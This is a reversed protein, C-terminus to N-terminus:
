VAVSGRLLCTFIWSSFGYWPAMLLWIYPEECDPMLLFDFGLGVEAFNVAETETFWLAFFVLAGGFLTLDAWLRTKSCLSM